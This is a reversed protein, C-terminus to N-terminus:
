LHVPAKSPAAHLFGEYVGRPVALTLARICFSGISLSSEMRRVWAEMIVGVGFTGGYSEEEECSQPKEM